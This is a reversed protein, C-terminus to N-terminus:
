LCVWSQKGPLRSFGTVSVIYNRGWVLSSDLNLQRLVKGTELEVERLSSGTEQGTGEFLVGKDYVLGQTFADSDHPYTNIVKYGYRKPVIDSYIIMFSTITNQPKGDRTLM